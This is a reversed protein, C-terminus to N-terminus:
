SGCQYYVFLCIYHDALRIHEENAVHAKAKKKIIQGKTGGGGGGGKKERELSCVAIAMSFSRIQLRLVVDQVM